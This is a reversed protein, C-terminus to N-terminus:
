LSGKLFKLQKSLQGHYHDAEDVWEPKEENKKACTRADKLSHIAIFPVDKKIWFNAENWYSRAAHSLWDSRSNKTKASLALFEALRGGWFFSKLQSFGDFVELQESLSKKQLLGLNMKGSYYSLRKSNNGLNRIVQKALNKTEITDSKEAIIFNNDSNLKEIEHKYNINTNWPTEITPIDMPVTLLTLDEVGRHIDDARGFPIRSLFKTIKRCQKISYSSVLPEIIRGSSQLTCVGVPEDLLAEFLYPPIFPMDVSTTIIKATKKINHLITLQAQLPGKSKIKMSDFIKDFSPLKLSTKEMFHKFNQYQDSSHFSLIIKNVVPNLNKLVWLFLSKGYLPYYIKNQDNNALTTPERFRRSEGGMWLIGIKEESQDM